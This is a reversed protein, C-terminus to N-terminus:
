QRLFPNSITRESVNIIRGETLSELQSLLTISDLVYNLRIGSTLIMNAMQQYETTIPKAKLLESLGIIGNLPTRFEHSINRLLSSKLKDSATAREKEKRLEESLAIRNSINVLLHAFVKLITIESDSYNHYKEISDFGVFGLCVDNNMLPVSIVSKIDKQSLFIKTEDNDPLEDVNNILITKGARQNKNWEKLSAIPLDQINDIEPNIGDKCWEFTNSITNKDWDYKFIYARDVNAFQAFEKLSESISDKIQDIPINIYHIAVSSLLKQLEFQNNLEAEAKKRQTIDRASGIVGIPQKNDNSLLKAHISLDILNGNAHYQQIEMWINKNEDYPTKLERNLTEFMIKLSAEPFKEELTKQKYEEPTLGFLDKVSPSIYTVNLDLDYIFFADTMNDTIQTLKEERLKLQNATRAQKIQAYSLATIKGLLDRYYSSVKL